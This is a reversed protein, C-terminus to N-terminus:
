EPRRAEAFMWRHGEIDATRYLRGFPAAEIGSLMTAGAAKARAFHAEIDAVYVFVGDIVWPARLWLDAEPCTERHHNPSRYDPTPTSLMILGRGHELQAHTITGDDATHRMERQERFGFAATLWDIAAAADEYALMPVVDPEAESM